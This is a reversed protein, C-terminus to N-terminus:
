SALKALAAALQAPDTVLPDHGFSAVQPRLAALRHLAARHKARGGDGDAAQLRTL